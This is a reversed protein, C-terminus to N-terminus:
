EDELSYMGDEMTWVYAWNSQVEDVGPELDVVVKGDSVAVKPLLLDGPGKRLVQSRFINNM